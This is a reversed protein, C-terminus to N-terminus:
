FSLFNLDPFGSSPFLSFGSYVIQPSDAFNLHIFFPFKLHWRHHTFYQSFPTLSSIKLFYVIHMSLSRSHFMKLLSKLQKRHKPPIGSQHERESVGNFLCSAILNKTPKMVRKHFKTECLFSYDFLLWVCVQRVGWTWTEELWVIIVELYAFLIDRHNERAWVTKFTEM